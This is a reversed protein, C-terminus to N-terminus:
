TLPEMARAAIAGGLDLANALNGTPDTTAFAAALVAAAALLGTAHRPAAIPPADVPTLSGGSLWVATACLKAPTAERIAEAASGAVRRKPDSPEHLWHHIARVAEADAPESTSHSGLARAAWAIAEYRPLSLGLFQAAEVDRGSIRLATFFIDPAAEDGTM